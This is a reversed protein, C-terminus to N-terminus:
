LFVCFNERGSNRLYPNDISVQYPLILQRSKAIHKKGRNNHTNPM